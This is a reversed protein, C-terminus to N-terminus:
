RKVASLLRERWARVLESQHPNGAPQYTYLLARRDQDSRNPASRHALYAGFFIVSGAGAEVPVLRREDFARTDMETAEGEGPGWTKLLGERHSGPAVELCGQKAGADDLMLMATCLRPTLDTVRGWYAGDQHLVYRGGLHARKLNLNETFLDLDAHGVIAASPTTLRPDFAL